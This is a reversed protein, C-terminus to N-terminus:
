LPNFRLCFKLDKSWIHRIFVRCHDRHGFSLQFVFDSNLRHLLDSHLDQKSRHNQTTKLASDFHLTTSPALRITGIDHGAVTQGGQGLITPNQSKSPVRYAGTEFIGDTLLPKM